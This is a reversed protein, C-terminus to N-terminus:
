KIARIRSVSVQTIGLYHALDGLTIRQLLLGNDRVFNNYRERANEELMESIRKMMNLSALSVLKRFFTEISHHKICLAEMDAHDIYIVTLPELAVISFTSPSQRLYSELDTCLSSEPFFRMIFEKEERKFGFKALGTEIFFLQGCIEGPELLYEGKSLTLTKLVAILDSLAPEDLPSLENCAKVFGNM